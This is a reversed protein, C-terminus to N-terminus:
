TLVLDRPSMLGAVNKSPCKEFVFIILLSQLFFFFNKIFSKKEYLSVYMELSLNTSNGVHLYITFM